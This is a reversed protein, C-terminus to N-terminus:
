TSLFDRGSESVEVELQEREVGRRDKRWAHIGDVVELIANGDCRVGFEIM